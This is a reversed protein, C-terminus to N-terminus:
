RLVPVNCHKKFEGAAYVVDKYPFAEPVEIDLGGPNKSVFGYSIDLFDIGQEEFAHAHKLGDQLLPEFAGLRIGIAFNDSVVKRIGELIEIAFLEPQQGYIDARKNINRNLFQCLLYRHCGHLEVGDYGAEFARRGALIFANQVRKIEEIDMKKGIVGNELEYTDPCLPDQAIGVIGAHHLQLFIPCGERHVAEVIRQLGPIHSDAWIGLQSEHLRGEKSVCTAEQIILGPKGQAMKAYHAVHKDSVIGKGASWHFCVMPPVCIRNEVLIDRIRLPEFLQKM